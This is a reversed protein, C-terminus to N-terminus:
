RCDKVFVGDGFFCPPSEVDYQGYEKSQPKQSNISM